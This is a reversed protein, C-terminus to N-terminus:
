AAVALRSTGFLLSRWWTRWYSPWLQCLPFCSITFSNALSLNRVWWNTSIRAESAQLANHWSCWSLSSQCSWWGTPCLQLSRSQDWRWEVFLITWHCPHTAGRLRAFFIASGAQWAPKREWGEHSMWCADKRGQLDALGICRVVYAAQPLGCAAWWEASGSLLPAPDWSEFSALPRTLTSM